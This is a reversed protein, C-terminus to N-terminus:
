RGALLGLVLFLHEVDDRAWRDLKGWHTTGAALLEDGMSLLETAGEYRKGIYPTLFDDAWAVETSRYRTDQMLVRLTRLETGAARVKLFHKARELTGPNLFEVAHGWEHELVGEDSRYWIERLTPRAGARRRVLRFEWDTPHAVRAATMATFFRQARKTVASRQPLGPIV